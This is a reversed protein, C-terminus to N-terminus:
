VVVEVTSFYNRIFKFVASLHASVVSAIDIGVVLWSGDGAGQAPSELPAGAVGAARAVGAGTKQVM